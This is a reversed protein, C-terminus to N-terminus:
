SNSCSKHQRKLFKKGFGTKLYKEHKRVDIRNSFEKRYILKFPGKGKTSKTRGANHEKMRRTVDNTMGVYFTNKITLLAYVYYM